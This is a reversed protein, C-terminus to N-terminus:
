AKLSYMYIKVDKLMSIEDFDALHSGLLSAM